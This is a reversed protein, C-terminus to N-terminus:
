SKIMTLMMKFRSTAKVAHPVNAPMLIMEGPKLDFANDAITIHANGDIIQVLAEYPATHESLGQNQDFAFLTISGNKKDILTQSVVAGDQYDIIDKTSQIQASELISM